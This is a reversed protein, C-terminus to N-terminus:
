QYVLINKNIRSQYSAVIRLGRFFDTTNRTKDNRILFFVDKEGVVEHVSQIISSVAIKLTNDKQEFDSPAFTRTIVCGKGEHIDSGFVVERKEHVTAPVAVNPKIMFHEDGPRKLLEIIGEKLLKFIIKKAKPTYYSDASEWTEAGDKKISVPFGKGDTDMLIVDAKKRGSTNRGMECCEVCNQVSWQKGENPAHFTINVPGNKTVDNIQNILTMENQIGASNAGQREKPKAFIFMDDLKVFGISSSSVPAREYIADEIKKELAELIAIRNENTLVAIRKGSIKKLDDYGHSALLKEAEQYEM